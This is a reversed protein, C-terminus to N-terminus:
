MRSESDSVKLDVALVKFRSALTPLTAAVSQQPSGSGGSCSFDLVNLGCNRQPVDLLRVLGMEPMASALLVRNVWNHCVLLVTQDPHKELFCCLAPLVRNAVDEPSEGAESCLRHNTQGRRWHGSTAKVQHSVNTICAGEFSGYSMERLDDLEIRKATSFLMAIANASAVARQLPSSGVVALETPCRGLEEALREAQVLGRATLESDNGGGSLLGLENAFTEGHRLLLFRTNGLQLPPLGQLATRVCMGVVPTAQHSSCDNSRDKIRSSMKTSSMAYRTLEFFPDYLFRILEPGDLAAKCFEGDAKIERILEDLNSFEIEPRIYGLVVLRLHSGYFDEKFEHMIWPEIAKTKVDKFTPNWGMSMAVRHVGGHGEGCGEVRGFACYIGTDHSQVFQLVAHEGETLQAHKGSNELDWRIRLNATPFGLEKSGRGFGHVVEARLRVPAIWRLNRTATAAVSGSM